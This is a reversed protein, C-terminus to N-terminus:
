SAIGIFMKNKRRESKQVGLKKQRAVHYYMTGQSDSMNRPVENFLLHTTLFFYNCTRELWLIGNYKLSSLIILEDLIIEQTDYAMLYWGSVAVHLGIVKILCSCQLRWSVLCHQAVPMTWFLCLHWWLRHSKLYCPIELHSIGGSEQPHYKAWGGVRAYFILDRVILGSVFSQNEKLNLSWNIRVQADSCSISLTYKFCSDRWLLCKIKSTKKWM